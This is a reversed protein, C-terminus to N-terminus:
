PFLGVRNNSQRSGCGRGSDHLSAPPIRRGSPQRLQGPFRRGKGLRPIWGNHEHVRGYLKRWAYFKSSGIRLWRIFRIAPIKTEASWGNVFHILADRMDPPWAGM